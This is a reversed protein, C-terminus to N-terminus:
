CFMTFGSSIVANKVYGSATTVARVCSYPFNGLTLSYHKIALLMAASDSDMRIIKNTNTHLNQTHTNSFLYQQVSHGGVAVGFLAGTLVLRRCEEGRVKVYPLSSSICPQWFPPTMISIPWFSPPPSLM